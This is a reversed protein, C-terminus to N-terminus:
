SIRGIILFCVLLVTLAILVAIFPMLIKRSKMRDIEKEAEIRKKELHQKYDGEVYVHVNKVKGRLQDIEIELKRELGKLQKLKDEIENKQSWLEQVKGLKKLSEIEGKLERIERRIEEDIEEM